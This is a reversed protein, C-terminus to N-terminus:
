LETNQSYATEVGVEDSLETDISVTDSLITLIYVIQSIVDIYEAFLTPQEIEFSFSVEGVALEHVQTLQVGDLSLTFDVPDITLNHVQSLEPAEISLAFDLPDVTLTIGGVTITVPGELDLAFDLAQVILEHVQTLSPTEIAFSFDLPDVELAVGGITITIPGEIALAFDMAAVVLEHVQTLSLPGDVTLAFDMAAVALEHVQTLAVNDATFSFSVEQVELDTVVTITLPGEVSLSFDVPDVVLEHVQTISVPGELPFSFDLPDVALEHVQSLTIPGELPFGFDLAAVLLEHVQTLDLPGEAQFSFDLAQVVLEHVQTISLPGELPFSYTHPAVAISHVQTLAVNDVPFSYTHPAVTLDIAGGAAALIEVAVYAVRRGTTATYDITDTGGTTAEYGAFVARNSYDGDIIETTGTGPTFPNSDAVQVISAALMLGDTDTTSLSISPNTSNNSTFAGVNGVGNNAGTLEVVLLTMGSGTENSESAVAVVNATTNTPNDLTWVEVTLYDDGAFNLQARNRYTFSESSNFTVSSGTPSSGARDYWLFFAVLTRDTGSGVAFSSVTVTNSAVALTAISHQVYAVAM